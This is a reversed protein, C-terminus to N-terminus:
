FCKDALSKEKGRKRFSIFSCQDTISVTNQDNSGTYLCKELSVIDYTDMLFALKFDIDEWDTHSRLYLDSWMPIRRSEGDAAMVSVGMLLTALWISLVMQFQEKLWISLKLTQTQDVFLRFWTEASHLPFSLVHCILSFM